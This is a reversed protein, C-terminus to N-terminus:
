RQPELEEEIHSKAELSGLGGDHSLIGNEPM